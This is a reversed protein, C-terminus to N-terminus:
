PSNRSRRFSMSNGAFREILQSLGYGMIPFYIGIMLIQFRPLPFFVMALLTMLICWLIMISLGTRVNKDTKSIKNKRVFFGGILLSALTCAYILIYAPTGGRTSYFDITWFIAAKKLMLLAARSPNERIWKWAERTYVDSNIKDYDEKEDLHSEIESWITDTSWVAGGSETWPSGTTIENNGRWFNFGGNTSVPIFRDFVIYNRITWPALVACSLAGAIAIYLVSRRLKSRNLYALLVFTSFILVPSEGRFLLLMGCSLGLLLAYKLENKGSDLAESFKIGIYLIIANLLLATSTVGFTMTVYGFPPYLAALWMTIQSARQSRFLFLSIKGLLYIFICAQAIQFIYLAVMGPEGKGFLSLFIYHLFTQGPPMYATPLMVISGDMHPWPFAYGAGSLMNYAIKGYEM